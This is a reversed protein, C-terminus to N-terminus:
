EDDSQKEWFDNIYTLREPIDQDDEIIETYERLDDLLELITVVEWYIGYPTDRVEFSHRSTEYAYQSIASDLERYIEDSSNCRELIDIKNNTLDNIM